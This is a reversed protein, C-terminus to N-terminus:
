IYKVKPCVDCKVVTAKLGELYFFHKLSVYTRLWGSHDGEKSNHFYSLIEERLGITKPVYTREKYHLLGERCVYGDM